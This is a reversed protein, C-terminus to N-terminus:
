PAPPAPPPADSFPAFLPPPPAPAFPKQWTMSYKQGAVYGRRQMVGSGRRSGEDRPAFARGRPSIESRAPGAEDDTLGLSAGSVSAVAGGRARSQLRALLLGHHSSCSSTRSPHEVIALLRVAFQTGTLGLEDAAARDRAGARRYHRAALELIQIDTPSDPMPVGECSPRVLDKARGQPSVSAGGHVQTVVPCGTFVSRRATDGRGFPVSDPEIGAVEVRLPGPDM